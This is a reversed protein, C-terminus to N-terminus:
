INHICIGISIKVTFIHTVNKFNNIQELEYIEKRFNKLKKM